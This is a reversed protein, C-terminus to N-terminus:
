RGAAPRHDDKFRFPAKGTLDSSTCSPCWHKEVHAVVFDTGDFHSVGPPREPNYM